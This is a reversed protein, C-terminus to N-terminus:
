SSTTGLQIVSDLQQMAPASTMAPRGPLGDGIRAVEAAQRNLRRQISRSQVSTDACESRTTTM